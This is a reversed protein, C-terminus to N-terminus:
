DPADHQSMAAVYEGDARTLRLNPWRFGRLIRVEEREQGMPLLQAICSRIPGEGKPCHRGTFDPPEQFVNMEAIDHVASSIEAPANDAESNEWAEVRGYALKDRLM